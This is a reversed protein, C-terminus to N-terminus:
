EKLIKLIDQYRIKKPASGQVSFDSKLHVEVEDGVVLDSVNIARDDKQNSIKSISALEIPGKIAKGEESELQDVFVGKAESTGNESVNGTYIVYPDKTEETQGCAVLLLLCVGVIALLSKKM